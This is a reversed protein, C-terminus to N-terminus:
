KRNHIVVPTVINIYSRSIGWYKRIRSLSSSCKKRSNSVSRRPISEMGQERTDATKLKCRTIRLINEPLKHVLKKHKLHKAVYGKHIDTHRTSKYPLLISKLNQKNNNQEILMGIRRMQLVHNKYLVSNENANLLLQKINKNAFFNPLKKIINSRIIKSSLNISKKDSLDINYLYHASRANLEKKITSVSRKTNESLNQIFM